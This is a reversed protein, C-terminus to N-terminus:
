IRSYSEKKASAPTDGDDQSLVISSRTRFSWTRNALFTVPAAIIIGLRQATTASLSALSYLIAFGAYNVLFSVTAVICFRMLDSRLSRGSPPFAWLRLLAFNFIGNIVFAIGLGPYPPIGLSLEASYAGIALLYGCGVVIGYRILQGKAHKGAPGRLSLIISKM